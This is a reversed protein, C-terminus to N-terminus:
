MSDGPPLVKGFIMRLLFGYADFVPHTKQTTLGCSKWRFVKESHKKRLPLSEGMPETGGQLVKSIPIFLNFHMVETSGCDPHNSGPSGLVHSGRITLPVWVIGAWVMGM